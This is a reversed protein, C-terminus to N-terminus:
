VSAGQKSFKDWTRFGFWALTPSAILVTIEWNSGSGKEFIAALEFVFIYVITFWSHRSAIAPRVGKIDQSTRITEQQQTHMTEDHELVLKKKEVELKELEVKLESLENPDLSDITSQLLLRENSTPNNQFAEIADALIGASKGVNDNRSQSFLRIVSPGVSLLTGLISM